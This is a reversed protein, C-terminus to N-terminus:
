EQYRLFYEQRYKIYIRDEYNLKKIEIRISKDAKTELLVIGDQVEKFRATIAFQRTIDKWERFPENAFLQALLSKSQPCSPTDPYNKIIKLSNKVAQLHNKNSLDRQAQKLLIEAEIASRDIQDQLPKVDVSITPPSSKSRISTDSHISESLSFRDKVPQLVRPTTRAVSRYTTRPVSRVATPNYTRSTSVGGGHFHYQGTRRNMHGGSSDTRGSHATCMNTSMSLSLSALILFRNARIM